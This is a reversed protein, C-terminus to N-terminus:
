MKFHDAALSPRMDGSAWILPSFFFTSFSSCSSQADEATGSCWCRGHLELLMAKEGSKSRMGWIDLTVQPTPPSWTVPM